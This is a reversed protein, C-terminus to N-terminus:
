LFFTHTNARHPLNPIKSKRYAATKKERRGGACLCLPALDFLHVSEWPSYGVTCIGFRPGCCHHELTTVKNWIFICGETGPQLMTKKIMKRNAIISEALDAWCRALYLVLFGRERSKGMVDTLCSLYQYWWVRKRFSWRHNSCRAKPLRVLLHANLGGFFYEVWNAFFALNLWRTLELRSCCCWTKLFLHQTHALTLSNWHM